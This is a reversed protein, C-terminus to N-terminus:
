KLSPPLPTHGVLTGDPRYVNENECHILAAGMEVAAEFSGRFEQWIDADGPLSIRAVTLLDVGAPLTPPNAGTLKSPHRRMAIVRSVLPVAVSGALVLIAGQVEPTLYAGAGPVLSTIIVMAAAIAGVAGGAAAVNQTTTSTTSGTLPNAMKKGKRYARWAAIGTKLKRWFTM